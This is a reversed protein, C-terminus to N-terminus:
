VLLPLHVEIQFCPKENTAIHKHSACLPVTINYVWSYYVVVNCDGTKVCINTVCSIYGICCPSSSVGCSSFIACSFAWGVYSTGKEYHEGEAASFCSGKECHQDCRSPQVPKTYWQCNHCSWDGTPPRCPVKGGM